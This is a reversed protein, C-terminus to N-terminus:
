WCAAPARHSSAASCISCRARAAAAQGAISVFRRASRLTSKSLAQVPSGAQDFQKSIGDVAIKIQTREDISRGACASRWARGMIWELDDASLFDLEETFQTVVQRLSCTPSVRTIDSGLVLPASRVGRDGPAATRAPEQVPLARRSARCRRVKVYVNPHRALANMREVAPGAERGHRARSAWTISLSSSGPTARPSRAIEPLREPAHVMVPIDHREAEPLVL